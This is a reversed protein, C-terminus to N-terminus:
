TVVQNVLSCKRCCIANKNPILKYFGKNNELFGVIVRCVVWRSALVFVRETNGRCSCFPFDPLLFSDSGDSCPQLQVRVNEPCSKLCRTLTPSGPLKIINM